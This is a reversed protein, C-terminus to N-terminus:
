SPHRACRFLLGSVVQTSLAWGQEQCSRIDQGRPIGRPFRLTRLVEFIPEACRTKLSTITRETVQPLAKQSHSHRSRHLSRSWSPAPPPNGPHGLGGPVVSGEWYSPARGTGHLGGTRRHGCLQRHRVSHRPPTLSCSTNCWHTFEENFLLSHIESLSHFHAPFTTTDGLLDNRWNFKHSKRRITEWKQGRPCFRTGPLKPPPLPSSPLPRCHHARGVSRPRRASRRAAFPARGEGTSGHRSSHSQYRPPFLTLM